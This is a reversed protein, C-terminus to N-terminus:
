FDARGRMDGWQPLKSHNDLRAGCSKMIEEGIAVLDGASTVTLKATPFASDLTNVAATYDSESITGETRDFFLNWRKGYYDKILGAYARHAYEPLSGTGRNDHEVWTTVMRRYGRVAAADDASGAMRGEHWDLRWRDSSALLREALDILKRFENRASKSTLTLGNIERARDSILQLFLEVFDYKFTELEKYSASRAAELYAEAASYLKTRDYEIAGTPGWSSVRTVPCKKPNACLVSELVGQQSRKTELVTEALTQVAARIATDKQGYRRVLYNDMFTAFESDEMTDNLPQHMQTMLIDYVMPNTELGESLLGWGLFTSDNVGIKTINRFRTVGGYMGTNGGFNMVECWIWPFKEGSSNTWGSNSAGSGNMNLDLREIITLDAVLNNVFAQSPNTGWHQLIWKVGPYYQQQVSQIKKAYRTVNVGSTSGGEHFLDGGLYLPAGATKFDYVEALHKYWAAAFDDFAPLSDDDGTASSAVNAGHLVWPRTLGQYSGQGLLTYHSGADNEPYKASMARQSTSPVLGVFAQLLPEIGLDKMAAYMWKAMAADQELQADSVPGGIGEINGMNWWAWTAADPIFKQIEETTYGMDTLTNKWVKGLGHLVLAGNFGNLALRDLEERWQRRNWFAMTYSITCYNYAMRLQTSPTYTKESAPIPWTTSDTVRNGCWSIHVKADNRLYQGLGFSAGAANAATIRIKGNMGPGVKASQGLGADPAFEFKAKAAAAAAANEGVEVAESDYGGALRGVIAKVAAFPEDAKVGFSILTATVASVFLTIKKM